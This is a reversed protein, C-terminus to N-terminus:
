HVDTHHVDIMTYRIRLHVDDTGAATPRKSHVNRYSRKPCTGAANHLFEETLFQQIYWGRLFARGTLFAARRLFVFFIMDDFIATVEQEASFDHHFRFVWPRLTLFDPLGPRFLVM